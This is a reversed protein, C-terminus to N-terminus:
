IRYLCLLYVDLHYVYQKQQATEFAIHATEQM